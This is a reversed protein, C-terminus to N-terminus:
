EAMRKFIDAVIQEAGAVPESDPGGFLWELAARGEPTAYMERVLARCKEEDTLDTM